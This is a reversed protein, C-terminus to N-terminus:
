LLAGGREKLGGNFTEFNYLGRGIGSFIRSRAINKKCIKMYSTRSLSALAEIM